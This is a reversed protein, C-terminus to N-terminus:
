SNKQKNFTTEPKIQLSEHGSERALEDVGFKENGYILMTYNRDAQQYIDQDSIQMLPVTLSNLKGNVSLDLLLAEIKM